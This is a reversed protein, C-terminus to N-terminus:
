SRAQSQHHVVDGDELQLRTGASEGAACTVVDVRSVAAISPLAEGRFGLSDIHSLDDIDNLKSTAHREFALEVEATPIGSGNDIVRIFDIGGGGIELSIQTAGADLSNELLEKVASSPREVVEGAAIQSIVKPELVTIPM